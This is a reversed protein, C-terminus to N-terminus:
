LSALNVPPNKVRGDTLTSGSLRTSLTINVRYYYKSRIHTKWINRVSLNQCALGNLVLSVYSM